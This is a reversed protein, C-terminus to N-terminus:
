ISLKHSKTLKKLEDYIIRIGHRIEDPNQTAISLRIGNNYHSSLEKHNVYFVNGDTVLVDRAKLKRCLEVSSVRKSLNLWFIFGENNPEIWEKDPDLYKLQELMIQNKEGYAKVIHEIHEGYMGSAIYLELSAQALLSTNLDTCAKAAVFREVLVEPLVVAGIRLGPMFTKSFSRLYIVRDNTDYYFLPLHKNRLDLAGLYDDEVIYVDYKDALEVLKMKQYKNLHHGLPNHFRSMTYYYKVKGSAFAEEVGKLDVGKEDRKVSYVPFKYHNLLDVLGRYSPTEVLIGDGEDTMASVLLHIAQQIGSVICLQAAKCYISREALFAVLTERLEILGQPHGYEYIRERYVETARNISHKFALHPLLSNDATVLSFDIVEEKQEESDENGIVYYGSKPISYIQHRDELLEFAKIITSKNYGFQEVLARISPLKDGSNLKNVKIMEEIAMAVEEYKM